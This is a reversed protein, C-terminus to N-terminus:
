VDVDGALVENEITALKTMQFDALISKIVKADKVSLFYGEEGSVPHYIKEMEM